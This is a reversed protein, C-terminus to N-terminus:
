TPLPVDAMSSTNTPFLVAEPVTQLKPDVYSNIASGETIDHESNSGGPFVPCAGPWCDCQPQLPNETLHCNEPILWLWVGRHDPVHKQNPKQSLVLPAQTHPILLLPLCLFLSGYQGSTIDRFLSEFWRWSVPVSIPPILDSHSEADPWTHHSVDTIGASPLSLDASWLELAM